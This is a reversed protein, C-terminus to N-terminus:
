NKRGGATAAVLTQWWGPIGFSRKRHVPMEVVSSRPMYAPGSALAHFRVIKAGEYIATAIVMCITFFAFFAVYGLLFIVFAAFVQLAANYSLVFAM